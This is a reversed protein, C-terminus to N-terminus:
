GHGIMWAVYSAVWQYAALGATALHERRRARPGARQWLRLGCVVAPVLPPIIGFTMIGIFYPIAVIEVIDEFGEAGGWVLREAAILTWAAAHALAFTRLAPEATWRAAALVWVLTPAMCLAAIARASAIPDFDAGTTTINATWAVFITAPWLALLARRAGPGPRRPAGATTTASATM